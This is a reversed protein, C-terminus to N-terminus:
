GVLCVYGSRHYEAIPVTEVDVGGARRDFLMFAIVSWLNRPVRFRPAYSQITHLLQMM